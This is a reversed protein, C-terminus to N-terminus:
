STAEQAQLRKGGGALAYLDLVLTPRGDGLDTAGTVGPVRVLPDELPRVVVEQQGLLRDVAFAMPEGNRRVVFAKQSPGATRRLVRALAVFPLAEGRRELMGLSSSREGSTGPAQVLRAHDVDLIEEITAVPVCFREGASEFTFADVITITLPVRLVFRTGKGPQTELLLEGGLEDVITRRVIDMGMGRGSTTTVKDRTSLGPMCLLDLLEADTRPLERGARRAVQAADVGRGDDRIEIELQTNSREVCTVELLGREPKGAALREAPTELAHDIANRVLHVIAPFIREAVTKDVEAGGVDLHLNVARGTSRSLGRVLLPVRELVEAMPVLRVRLIAARLDRLQRANEQVVESLERVNVGQASLQATARALKYRIVVLAGLREMADDLRQVDVRVFGHRPASAERESEDLEDALLSRVPTVRGAPAAASPAPPTAPAAITELGDAELRAVQALTADDAETLLILAFALGGPTADTVPMSRPVVKVIEAHAALRERVTTITVGAEARAPTPAFDLRVIRMGAALGQDLQDREVGGLRALLAPDLTATASPAGASANAESAGPAPATLTSEDLSELRELLLAPADSVDRNESVARVRLEIARVGELMGDIWGPELRVGRRDSTRLAAEMRHALAVVPEVGVMASLGKITHMARFLERLARVHSDGTRIAQELLLLQRNAVGLLEEAEVIYATRFEALDVSRV